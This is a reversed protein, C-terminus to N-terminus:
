LYLVFSAMMTLTLTWKLKAGDPSNGTWGVVTESWM